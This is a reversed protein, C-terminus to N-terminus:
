GMLDYVQQMYAAEDIAQNFDDWKEETFTFSIEPKPTKIIIMSINDRFHFSCDEFDM